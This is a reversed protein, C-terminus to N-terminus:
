QSPSDNSEVQEAAEVVPSDQQHDFIVPQEQQQLDFLAPQKLRQREAEFMVPGYVFALSTFFVWSADCLVQYAAVVFNKFAVFPERVAAPIAGQREEKPQAEATFEKKESEM